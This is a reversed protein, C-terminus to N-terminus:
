PAREAYLDRGRSKAVPCGGLLIGPVTDRLRYTETESEKRVTVAPLRLGM